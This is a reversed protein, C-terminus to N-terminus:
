SCVWAGSQDFQCSTVTGETIPGGVVPWPPGPRLTWTGSLDTVQQAHSVLAGLFLASCFATLLMQRYSHFIARALLPPLFGIMSWSFPARVLGGRKCLRRLM